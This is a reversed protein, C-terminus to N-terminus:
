ISETWVLEVPPVVDAAERVLVFGGDAHHAEARWIHEHVSEAPGEWADTLVANWGTGDVRTDATHRRVRWFGGAALMDETIEPFSGYRERALRTALALFDAVTPTPERLTRRLWIELQEGQFRSARARVAELLAPDSRLVDVLAPLVSDPYWRWMEEAFRDPEHTIALLEPPRLMRPM